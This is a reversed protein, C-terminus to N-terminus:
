PETGDGEFFDGSPRMEFRPKTRLTAVVCGIVGVAGVLHVLEFTPRVNGAALDGTSGLLQVVFIAVAVVTLPRSWRPRLAVAVLVVGLLCALTGDRVLHTTQAAWTGPLAIGLALPIGVLLQMGACTFLLVRIWLAHGPFVPVPSRRPTGSTTSDRGSRRDALEDTM